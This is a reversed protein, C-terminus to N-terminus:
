AALRFNDQPPPAMPGLEPPSGYAEWFSKVVTPWRYGFKVMSVYARTIRYQAAIQYHPVGLTILHLIERVSGDSLKIPRGELEAHAKKSLCELHDVNCCRKNRCHHHIEHGPPIPGHFTAWAMRYAPGHAGIAYGKSNTAGQWVLCGNEDPLVVPRAPRGRTPRFQRSYFPHQLLQALRDGYNQDM